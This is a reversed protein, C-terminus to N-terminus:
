KTLRSILFVNVHPKSCLNRGSKGEPWVAKTRVTICHSFDEALLRNLNDATRNAMSTCATSLCLEFRAESCWAILTTLAVEKQHYVLFLMASSQQSGKGGTRTHIPYHAAGSFPMSFPLCVMSPYVCRTVLVGFYKKDLWGVSDRPELDFWAVWHTHAATVCWHPDDWKHLSSCCVRSSAVSVHEKYCKCVCGAM